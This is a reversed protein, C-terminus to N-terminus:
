RRKLIKLRKKKLNPKRGQGKETIIGMIGYARERERYKPHNKKLEILTLKSSSAQFPTRM